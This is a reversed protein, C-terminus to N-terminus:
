GAQPKAGEWLMFAGNHVVLDIASPNKARRTAPDFRMSRYVVSPINAIKGM